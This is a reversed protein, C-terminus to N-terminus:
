TEDFRGERTPHRKIAAEEEDDPLADDSDQYANDDDEESLDGDKELGYSIEGDESASDPLIRSGKIADWDQQQIIPGDAETDDNDIDPKSRPAM